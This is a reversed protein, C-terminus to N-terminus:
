LDVLSYNNNASDVVACVVKQTLAAVNPWINDEGEGICMDAFMEWMKVEQQAEAEITIASREDVTKLNGISRTVTAVFSHEYEDNPIVFDDLQITGMTGAIELYQVKARDFGCEFNGRKGGSFLVTGGIHIPVGKESFVAGQHATVSTPKEYNFAWLIARVCYWGLDGAAGLPDADPDLRVDSKMFDETGLFAFTCTVEKLDGLPRDPAHLYQREIYKTRKNHMWMTGDMLQVSHEKCVAVISDADETSLAIPKELLIHKGAKAALHVWQLHLASPLPIYVAEVQPDEIVEEYTGYCTASCGMDRLLQEGKAADRSGLAVLDVKDTFSFARITKRAIRAAGLIGIGVTM